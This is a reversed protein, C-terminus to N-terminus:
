QRLHSLVSKIQGTRETEGPDVQRWRNGGIVPDRDWRKIRVGDVEICVMQNTPVRVRQSLGIADEFSAVVQYTDTGSNTRSIVQVNVGEVLDSSPHSFLRDFM